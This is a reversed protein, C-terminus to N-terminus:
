HSLLLKLGEINNGTVAWYVASKGKNDVINVDINPVNLLLKLVQKNKGSVAGHLACVGWDNTQNVDINPTKLLLEVVSNHNKHVARMLGTWGNEDTNVDGGCQLAAKVGELDGKKCLKVLSM